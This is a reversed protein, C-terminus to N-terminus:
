RSTDGSDVTAGEPHRRSRPDLRTSSEETCAPSTGDVQVELVRPGVAVGHHAVPGALGPAGEADVVRDRELDNAGSMSRSRIALQEPVTMRRARM